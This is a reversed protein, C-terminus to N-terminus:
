PCLVVELGNSLAALGTGPVAGQLHFRLGALAPLDPVGVPWTVTGTADAGFPIVALNPVVLLVGSEFPTYDAATGWALLATALAPAGALQITVTTGVSASGSASLSLTHAFPNLHDYQVFGCVPQNSANPTPDLLSYAQNAGDFLSGTAVDIEQPGFTLSAILTAGDTGFLAVTEGTSSLKFDAHLPGDTLDEDAWFLITSGAPLLTGAPIQWETPTLLNDTMYMGSLDVTASSRNYLEVYDEFQGMEDALVTQNRALVENFIVDGNSPPAPAEIWNPAIETRKPEFTTSSFSNASSAGVYYPVRQGPTLTFPLAAGYVGDGAAGDGATGNDSMPVRTWPGTLAPQYFLRATAVPVVPGAIQATIYITVGAQNTSAQVNTIVPAPANLEVNALLLARRQDVYQKLGLVNGGFPGGGGLNVTTTFNNVFSTYSYLKKPDAQVASDILAKHTEFIPGLHAWDLLPLITRMHAFYRQRLEAAALVNSLFPKSTAGFNHTASWTAVKFAENGDTQHLHMRGDIPNRYAVFDAGKNIYSDDDACLNELAVTWTSPDIAFVQDITQWSAPPTTSVAQCVAILPQFPDAFGGPDKIEYQSYSSPSTGFYQLGPGNPNNPMKIRLGDENDFHQKLLTKDYQQINAYVGWNQGELTLVIHNARGNPIWQALLNSYVVERCFTPDTFANNFNLNKFGMVTQDDDVFNVDINLSVKQSGVPLATYSTNGRIRVGVNPYTVGAVTMDALINTQSAYNAQLLSWWNASHFDLNVTRLVTTDYFDQAAAASACLALGAVCLLTKM